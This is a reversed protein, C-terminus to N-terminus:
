NLWLNSESSGSPVKFFNPRWHVVQSYAENVLSTFEQGSLDGWTYNGRTVPIFPPLSYHHDPAGTGGFPLGNVDDLIAGDLHSNDPGNEAEADSNTHVAISTPLPSLTRCYDQEYDAMTKQNACHGNRSPFCDICRLGSKVCVCSRCCGRGNCRCYVPM